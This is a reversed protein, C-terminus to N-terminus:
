PKGGRRDERQRRIRRGAIAGLGLLMLWAMEPEPVAAVTVGSFVPQFNADNVDFRLAPPTGAGLYNFAVEFGGLSAGTAIGSGLALSDLFGPSKLATDPQVILSDWNAPSSNLALSAFSTDPFYITFDKIVSPSGDGTVVFDAFWHNGAVQHYSASISAAAACLPAVLVSAGLLSALLRGKVSTEKQQGQPQM